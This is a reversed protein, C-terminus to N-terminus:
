NVQRKVDKWFPARLEKKLIKGSPNLPLADIFSISRPVKFGAIHQRAHEILEEQSVRAGEKVVVFGKVSEGWKQDPIGIIAVEKVAPHLSLACEVEAPYINEGGSIIMDKVRDHIFLFGEEDMFGADGTYFWGDRISKNTAEKNNWYGKMVVDAKVIIEGVEGTDLVEGADNVIRLEVGDNAIGCSRLRPNNEIYHEKAPLYTVSGTTETLGYVQVFDCKFIRLASQLCGETIPSAGYGVFNFTSLDRGNISPDNILFNLVSPVLFAKSIKHEEILDLVESPNFERTLISTIGAAIGVLGWVTAAVHFMPLCVLSVDHDDWQTWNSVFIMKLETLLNKHTLEVGKPHGTTGSTYLQIATDQENINEINIATSKADKKWSSFNTFTKHEKTLAIIKNVTKVENEINEIVNFFDHDVFVLESQSDDLVYRVEASVSRWNIGVLVAGVHLCAHFIEVYNQSNKAMIAVRSGPKVGEDLLRNAITLVQQHFQSYTTKEGEFISFTNNPVHKAQYESLQALNKINLYAQNM